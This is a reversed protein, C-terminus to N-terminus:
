AVAKELYRLLSQFFPLGDASGLLAEAAREPHPMMGLVNGRENMMGAIQKLSGNPNASESVEGQPNCYKFLIRGEGELRELTAADAYFGGENHAIPLRLVQGTQYGETFPTDNREVRIHVDQCLFHLGKNRALQGPLLGAETLIQFGNCIGIVLGGRGALKKISAMIPSLAAIAGSRLYDGYSFGGPIVVADAKGLSEARHWIMSVNAKLLDELVYRADDDCNSGPFQIVAVRM